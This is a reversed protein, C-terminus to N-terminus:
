TTRIFCVGKKTQAFTRFNTPFYIFHTFHFTPVRQTRGFIYFM